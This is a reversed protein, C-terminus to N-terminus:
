FFYKLGIEFQSRHYNHMAEMVRRGIFKDDENIRSASNDLIGGLVGGLVVGSNGSYLSLVRVRLNFNLLLSSSLPYSRGISGNFNVVQFRDFASKDLEVTDLSSISYDSNFGSGTSGAGISEGVYIPVESNIRVFHCGFGAGIYKGIPSISGKRYFRAHFNLGHKNLKPDQLIDLNQSTVPDDYYFREPMRVRAYEYGILFELNRKALFSYNLKYSTRLLKRRRKMRYEDGNSIIKKSRFYAPTGGARFEVGHKSGFYGSNVQSFVSGVQMFCLLAFLVSLRKYNMKATKLRTFHMMYM